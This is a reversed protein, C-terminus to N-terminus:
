GKNLVKVENSSDERKLKAEIKTAAAVGGLVLVRM